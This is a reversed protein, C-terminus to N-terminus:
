PKIATIWGSGTEETRVVLRGECFGAKEVIELLELDSYAGVMVNFLAAVLPGNKELTLLFEQIVLLGGSVMSGYAKALKMSAQSKPGHLVNSFLMVDYGEGFDDTDWNGARTRIRKQLGEAAIVREAIAITDPLDFVVANL